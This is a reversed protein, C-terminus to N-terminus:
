TTASRGSRQTEAAATTGEALRDLVLIEPATRVAEPGADPTARHGDRVEV